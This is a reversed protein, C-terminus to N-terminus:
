LVKRNIKKITDARRELIEDKIKGKLIVHKTSSDNLFTNNTKKM